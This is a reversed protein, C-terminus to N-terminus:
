GLAFPHGSGAWAPMFSNFTSSSLEYFLTPYNDYNSYDTFNLKLRMLLSLLIEEVGQM